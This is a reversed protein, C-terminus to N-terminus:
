RVTVCVASLILMVVVLLVAVVVVVRRGGHDNGLGVDRRVRPDDLDHVPRLDAIDRGGAGQRGIGRRAGGHDGAPVGDVLVVLVVVTATPVEVQFTVAAAFTPEVQTSLGAAGAAGAVPKTDVV